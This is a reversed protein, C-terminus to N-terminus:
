KLEKLLEKATERVLRTDVEPYKAKFYSLIENVKFKGSEAITERIKYYNMDTYPNLKEIMVSYIYSVRKM